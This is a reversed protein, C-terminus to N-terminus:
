YPLAQINDTVTILISPVAPAFATAAEAKIQCNTDDTAWVLEFYDADAMRVVYNWSSVADASSGSLGIRGSSYALDVGNIRAWIWVQGLSASAKALEVSFQFNYIGAHWVYIRSAPTGLEVGDAFDTTNYTIPYATNIATATQTVTSYFEGYPTHRIHPHSAQVSADNSFVDFSNSSTIKM